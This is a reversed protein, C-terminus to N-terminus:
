TSIPTQAANKLCHLPLMECDRKKPPIGIYTLWEDETYAQLWEVSKGRALEALM